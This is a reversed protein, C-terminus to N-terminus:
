VAEGVSRTFRVGTEPGFREAGDARLAPAHDALYEEFARRTPFIYRTEVRIPEPPDTVRVIMASHAGAAVVADVHGDKLWELYREATPRDPLTATVTYVIASM